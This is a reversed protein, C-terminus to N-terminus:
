MEENFRIRKMAKNTQCKRSAMPSTYVCPLNSFDYQLHCDHVICKVDAEPSFYETHPLRYVEVVFQLHVIYPFTVDNLYTYTLHILAFASLFIFPIYEHNKKKKTYLLKLFEVSAYFGYNKRCVCIIIKKFQTIISFYIRM